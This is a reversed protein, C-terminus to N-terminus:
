RRLGLKKMKMCNEAFIIDFSLNADGRQPRRGSQCFGPDGEPNRHSIKTWLRLLSLSFVVSIEIKENQCLNDFSNFNILFNLNQDSFKFKSGFMFFLIKM